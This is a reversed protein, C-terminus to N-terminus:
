SLKSNAVTHVEGRIDLNNRDGSLVPEIDMSAFVEINKRRMARRRRRFYFTVYAALLATGALGGVIEAITRKM